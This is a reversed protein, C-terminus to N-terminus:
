NPINVSITGINGEEKDWIIAEGTRFGHIYGKKFHWADTGCISSLTRVVVGGFTDGALYKMQKKKHTHGIHWERYLSTAWMKPEEAAMITPLSDMKEENGHTMGLMCKGWQYYKRVKPSMNVTVQDINRYHENLADVLYYSLEPDHNGPVWTIDVPAVGLCYDIAKIVAMKGAQYIKALRSDYDLRNHAAPTLGDPNNLHFFDQGVPFLIREIKYHETRELIKQVTKVFIEEAIKIDWDTNTEKDWALLGFHIDNLGIELLYGGDPNGITKCYIPEHSSIQKILGRIAEEAPKIIIPKFWVKTQYNTRVVPEENVKMTVQWSNIIYRDVEYVGLDVNAAELAADLTNITLSNIEVSAAKDSYTTKIKTNSLKDNNDKTDNIKILTVYRRADNQSINFKKHLTDRGCGSKIATVVDEPIDEYFKM